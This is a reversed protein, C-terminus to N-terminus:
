AENKSRRSATVAIWEGRSEITHIDYDREELANVIDARHVKLLGALIVREPLGKAFPFRALLPIIIYKQINILALDSGFDDMELVDRIELSVNRIGNRDLNELFNNRIDPDNDVARVEAAGLKRAAISLIGSGCGLDLVRDGSKMMQPLLELVLRTSEHTGTGFANAPNIIIGETGKPIEHERWPPVVWLRDSIRVPKFGEVWERNWDRDELFSEEVEIGPLYNEFLKRLGAAKCEKDTVFLGDSREEMASDMYGLETLMDLTAAVFAKKPLRFVIYGRKSM